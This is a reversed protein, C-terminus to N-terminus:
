DSRKRQRSRKKLDAHNPLYKTHRVIVEHSLHQFHMDFIRASWDPYKRSADSLVWGIATQVFREQSPVLKSILEEVEVHFHGAKVSKKFALLGSRRQWVSSATHWGILREVFAPYKLPITELVRVCLWDNTSWDHIDGSAFTDELLEFIQCLAATAEDSTRRRKLWQQLWLIAIFKDEALPTSLWHRIHELQVSCSQKNLDTVDFFESLIGKLAPTKVGRYSIAGKLYNTFWEATEPKAEAELMQALLRHAEERDDLQKKM